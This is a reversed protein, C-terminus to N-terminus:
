PLKAVLPRIVREFASVVESLWAHQRDWDGIDRPDMDDRESAIHAEKRGRERDWLLPWGIEQEIKDRDQAILDFLEKIDDATKFILRMSVQPSNIRIRGEYHINRQGNRKSPNVLFYRHFFRAGANEFRPLLKQEARMENFRSWYPFGLVSANTDSTPKGEPVRTANVPNLVLPPLTGNILRSLAEQGQEATIEYFERGPVRNQRFMAQLKREARREDEFPHFAVVQFRRPVGTGNSLQRAREDPTLTTSGIKLLGPMAPNVM